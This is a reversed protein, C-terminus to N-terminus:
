GPAYQAKGTGQFVSAFEAACHISLNLRKNPLSKIANNRVVTVKFVFCFQLNSVLRGGEGVKVITSNSFTM